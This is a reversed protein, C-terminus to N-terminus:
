GGGGGERWLLGAQRGTVQDRRHSFFLEPECSTCVDAAEVQSVGARALLRTAVEVLDLRGDVAIGPGLEAFQALVEDGVRYCCRGIAPGIAAAQPELAEAGRALIGAALGRWGCHLMAVREHGVLAVPLCDAVQVIPTLRPSATLQGDADAPPDGAPDLYPNPIPAEARDRLEADHVQRGILFGSADRGLAAALRRRNERVATPEDGTQLGLNLGEFPGASVGGVRTSFVAHAGPLEAELLRLGHKSIWEM